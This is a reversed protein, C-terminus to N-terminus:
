IERSEKRAPPALPGVAEASGALPRPPSIWNGQVYDVGLDRLREVVAANTVGEAVTEIGMVHGVQNISEVMAQDLPDTVIDKIFKGDIKLFSVPLEKLYSYSSMGTGFDDLAFRIGRATLHSLVRRAQPLNEIAATETIEFCLKGPPAGTAALEEDLFAVFGEDSLSVASLNISCAQLQNIFPPPQSTLARVCNRIVWRDIARMMGYREAARIFDSPLHIRGDEEVMRLLVEFYLGPTVLPSLPQIPQSFLRFRNQELTQQIRVVWNMEGHRRIFTADDEQYIQVRNRGKEKAAYCAHDAASLLHAVTKFERTIPVLGISAGIAFTKDRWTFRFQQLAHHFEAVQREAQELNARSFLVAFEDGGLRAVLDTDRLSEQLLGTVRCLLEDGALHGCTDNVLKFQDLDMYCLAHVGARGRVEELAQQLHGDFAQRNLLGTLEDHTAQHALQLAMLRKDSVDQFVLVAGLIGGDGAHIPAGTAEVAYRRGDRRELTSREILRFKQGEDICRRLLDGIEQGGATETLRFIESLPRGQAESPEWGTLAEAVPNLYEIRGETDTALVGDGISDLTVQALALAFDPPRM